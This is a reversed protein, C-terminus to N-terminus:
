HAPQAPNAAADGEQGLPLRRLIEPVLALLAPRHDKDLLPLVIEVDARAAVIVIPDAPASAVLLQEVFALELDQRRWFHALVRQAEAVALAVGVADLRRARRGV